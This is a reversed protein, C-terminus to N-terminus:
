PDWAVNNLQTLKRSLFGDAITESITDSAARLEIRRVAPSQRNPGSAFSVIGDLITLPIEVIYM